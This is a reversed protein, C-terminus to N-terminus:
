LDIKSWLTDCSLNYICLEMVEGRLPFPPFSTVVKTFSLHASILNFRVASTDEATPHFLALCLHIGEISSQFSSKHYLVYVSESLFDTPVTCDTLKAQSFLLFKLSMETYCSVDCHKWAQSCSCFMSLSSADGDSGAHVLVTSGGWGITLLGM